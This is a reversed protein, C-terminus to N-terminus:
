ALFVSSKTETVHRASHGLRGACALCALLVLPREGTGAFEHKLLLVNVRREDKKREARIKDEHDLNKMLLEHICVEHVRETRAVRHRREGVNRPDLLM